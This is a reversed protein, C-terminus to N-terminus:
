EGTREILECIGSQTSPALTPFLLTANLWPTPSIGLNYHQEGLMDFLRNVRDRGRCAPSGEGYLAIPYREQLLEYNEWTRPIEDYIRTILLKRLNDTDEKSVGEKELQEITGAMLEIDPLGDLYLSLYTYLLIIERDGGTGDNYRKLIRDLNSRLHNIDGPDLAYLYEEAIRRHHLVLEEEFTLNGHWLNRPESDFPTSLLEMIRRSIDGNDINLDIRSQFILEPIQRAEQEETVLLDRPIDKIIRYQEVTPMGNEPGQGREWGLLSLAFLFCTLAHMKM